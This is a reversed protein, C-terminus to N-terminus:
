FADRCRTLRSRVTADPMLDLLAALEPGEERGTLALRLPHFFARGKAGTAAKVDAALAKLDPGHSDWAGIAAEFFEASAEPPNEVSMGVDGFVIRAWDAVHGPRTVNPKVATVFDALRDAPVPELADGAWAVFGDTELADVALHQWRELHSADVRARATSVNTVDFGAALERLSLLRDDPWPYGLRALYNVVAQPLLGEERWQSLSLGGARKSLREGGPGALLPLHGYRPVPLGLAELLAVQRATNALHDEGRLVHTVGMLADDVANAFLFAASGDARALVFDGVEVAPVSREGRVLDHWRVEGEDYCRFRIVPRQGAARRKAIEGVSLAAWERDYRPPLHRAALERRRESLEEETRWCTYARGAEALLGLHERYIGDRESQRYPGAGDQTDPGADWELGLWSLDELIRGVHDADSRLRDTDESRVIFRGNDQRALLWNYLATRANGAHLRGTPSPAFRTVISM